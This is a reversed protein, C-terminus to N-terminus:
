NNPQAKMKKFMKNLAQYYLKEMDTIKKLKYILVHFSENVYVNTIKYKWLLGRVISWMNIIEDLYKMIDVNNCMFLAREKEIKKSHIIGNLSNLYLDLNPHIKKRFLQENLFLYEQSIIFHDLIEIGKVIFNATEFFSEIYNERWVKQTPRSGLDYKNQAPIFYEFYTSWKKNKILNDLAGYYCNELDIMAITRKEFIMSERYQHEIINFELKEISYGYVLLYHPIHQIQYTDQRLPEYYCDIYVIVPNNNDISKIIRERVNLVRDTGWENIGIEELIKFRSKKEYCDLYFIDEKVTYFYTDNFLFPYIPICSSKLVPFLMSYFCNKYWFDNFPEINKIKKQTM